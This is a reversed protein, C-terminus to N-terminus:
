ALPNQIRRQPWEAGPRPLTCHSVPFSGLALGGGVVLPRRDATAAAGRVAAPCRAQAPGEADPNETGGPAAVLARLVM